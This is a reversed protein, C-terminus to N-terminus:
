CAWGACIPGSRPDKRVKGRHDRVIRDRHDRSSVTKSPVPIKTGTTTSKAGSESGAEARHVPALLLLGAVGAAAAGRALIIALTM